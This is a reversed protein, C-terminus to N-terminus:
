GGFLSNIRKAMDGLIGVTYGPPLIMQMTPHSTFNRFKRIAHWKQGDSTTIVSKSILWDIRKEFTRKSKPAGLDKSKYSIAAEAVRFVQELALTYLPYFLFGYAMAGRAVEFLRQIEIPVTEVLKPELTRQMWENGTSAHAEGDPSLSVFVRLVDDPELWNNVTLTKFELNTM